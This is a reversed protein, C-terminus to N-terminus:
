TQEFCPSLWANLDNIITIRDNTDYWDDENANIDINNDIFMEEIIEHGTEDTM